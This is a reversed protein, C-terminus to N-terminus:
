MFLRAISFAEAFETGIQEGRVRLWRELSEPNRGPFHENVYLRMAEVKSAAAAQTVTVYMNPSFSHTFSQDSSSPTETEIVNRRLRFPRTGLEVAQSIARHSQHVDGRWHTIVLDSWEIWPCIIPLIDTPTNWVETELRANHPVVAQAGLVQVASEFQGLMTAWNDRGAVDMRRLPLLVKVQASQKVATHITAGCGITEDDPHALICVIKLDQFNV